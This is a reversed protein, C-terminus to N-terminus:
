EFYFYIGNQNHTFQLVLMNYYLIKHGDLFIHNTLLTLLIMCARDVVPHNINTMCRIFINLIDTNTLKVLGDFMLM